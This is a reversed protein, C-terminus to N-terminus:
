WFLSNMFSLRHKTSVTQQIANNFWCSWKWPFKFYSLQPCGFCSILIHMKMMRWFFTMWVYICAKKWTWWCAYIMHRDIGTYPLPIDFPFYMLPVQQSLSRPRKLM